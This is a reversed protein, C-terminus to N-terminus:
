LVAYREKRTISRVTAYKCECTPESILIKRGGGPQLSWPFLAMDTADM